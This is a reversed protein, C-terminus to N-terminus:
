RWLRILVGGPRCYCSTAPLWISYLSLVSARFRNEETSITISNSRTRRRPRDVVLLRAAVAVTNHM